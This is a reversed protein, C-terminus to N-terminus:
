QSISRTERPKEVNSKTIVASSAKELIQGVDEPALDCIKAVEERSFGEVISLEAVV